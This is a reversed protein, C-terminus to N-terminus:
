KKETEDTAKSLANVLSKHECEIMEQSRSNYATTQLRKIEYKETLVTLFRQNKSEEDVSM